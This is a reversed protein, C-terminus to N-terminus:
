VRIGTCEFFIDADFNPISMVTEKDNSSLGDWWSQVDAKIEEKHLYGGITEFEPHAEKEADSMNEADTWAINVINQPMYSLIDRAMSREWDAYTMGSPKNFMEITREETMFCGTNNNTKNWDGTNHNGTNRNGTNCDGTNHDGTNWDGTNHDGTNRNGTNCYGTNCYGTNRNGTNHNGTNWDGANWNGTNRNGTNCYGTNCYGTNHNGTNWNGTNHNGTNRNGTNCDGPNCMGTNDKGENVMDLVEHWTIERIIEIDSACHKTDDEKSDIDGSAEIEAVKNNSNFKYYNFCDALKTCFHFGNECCSIEGDCHYKKGVEYKFGKCTWDPNFVKYGKM